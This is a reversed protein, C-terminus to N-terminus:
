SKAAHGDYDARYWALCRKEMLEWSLAGIAVSCLWALITVAIQAPSGIDPTGNLILGHLLGDIPQHVLYFAYSIKGFYRLVPSRWRAAEPAGNVIALIFSAIAVSVLSPNVVIFTKEFRHDFREAASIILLVFACLVPVFRSLQLHKKVDFHRQFVAAIVGSLLVDLRSPMLTWAALPNVGVLAVRLLPGVLWLAILVHLRRAPRTFYMALPLFMYFREEVAVTWTPLLWLGGGGSFPLMINQLFLAYVWPAFPTDSWTHGRTLAVLALTLFCFVAYAPFIRVVRRGYFVRFFRPTEVKDLIITGILFGSLVFFLDVAIWGVALGRFGHPAEGVYHATVVALASAGRLGDL